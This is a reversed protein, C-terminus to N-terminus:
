LDRRVLNETNILQVIHDELRKEADLQKWRKEHELNKQTWSKWPGPKKPDLNKQTWAKWPGHKESDMNKLTWTKRPRPGPNLDLTRTWSKSTAGGSSRKEWYKLLGHSDHRFYEFLKFREFFSSFTSATMRLHEELYANKFIQLIERFADTNSDRNLLTAPRLSWCLHKRAFNRLKKLVDKKVSCRRHNSRFFIWWLEVLRKM